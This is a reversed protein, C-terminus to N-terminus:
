RLVTATTVIFAAWLERPLARSLAALFVRDGLELRPASWKGAFSRSRIVCSWYSSTRPPM